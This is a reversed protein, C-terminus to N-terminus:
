GRSFGRAASAVAALLMLAGLPVLLVGIWPDSGHVVLGGLFFGGPLLLSSGTLLWSAHRRWSPDGQSHARVSAAFALHVLALLTGHAHALTWMLRRTENSVDLYLRLKFGHMLELALGLALFVLLLRWGLVLHRRACRETTEDITM